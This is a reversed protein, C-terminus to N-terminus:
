KNMRRKIEELIEGFRIPRYMTQEVSINIHAPSIDEKEHRHGHVNFIGQKHNLYVEDSLYRHSFYILIKGDSWIYWKPKIGDGAIITFGCSELFKKKNHNGLILYKNGRLLPLIDLFQEKATLYKNSKALFMDGLCVIDDEPLVLQNWNIIILEHYNTPRDCYKIIKDHFLHPDSIFWTEKKIELM